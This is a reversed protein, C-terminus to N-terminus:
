LTGQVSTMLKEEGLIALAAMLALRRDRFYILPDLAEVIKATAALASSRPQIKPTPKVKDPKM